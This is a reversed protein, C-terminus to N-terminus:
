QTGFIKVDAVLLPVESRGRLHLLQSGETVRFVLRCPAATAYAGLVGGPLAPSVDWVAGLGTEHNDANVVELHQFLMSEIRTLEVRLPGRIPTSDMNILSLEVTVLGIGPDYGLETLTFTVSSSVDRLGQTTPVPPATPPGAPHVTVRTTWLEGDGEAISWLSHFIGTADVTLEPKGGGYPELLITFAKRQIDPNEPVQPINYAAAVGSLYTDLPFTASERRPCMNIPVSPLFTSGGDLSAAFRLCMGDEGWSLGVTGDRNVAVRPSRVGVWSEVRSNPLDQHSPRVRDWDDVVRPATWTDGEDDSNTLFTRVSSNVAGEFALYLRGHHAGSSTDVAMSSSGACETVMMPPELTRGGDTSRVVQILTRMLQGTHRTGNQSCLKAYTTIVTGSPLVLPTGPFDGGNPVQALPLMVRDSLHLGGDISYRMPRSRNDESIDSWWSGNYANSFVYVRGRYLGHTVDVGIQSYDMWSTPTPDIVTPTWTRGADLSRYFRMIGGGLRKREHPLNWTEAIFYAQGSPGYACTEESVTRGSTSDILVPAWHAGGDESHYVYGQWSGDVPSARMGCVILHQPAEPDAALFSSLHDGAGFPSVRIPLDVEVSQAHLRTQVVCLAGLLLVVSLLGSQHLSQAVRVSYIKTKLM